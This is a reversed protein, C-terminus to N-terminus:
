FHLAYRKIVFMEQTIVNLSQALLATLFQDLLKQYIGKVLTPLECYKFQNQMDSTLVRFGTSILCCMQFIIMIRLVSLEKSQTMSGQLEEQYFFFVYVPFAQIIEFNASYYFRSTCCMM